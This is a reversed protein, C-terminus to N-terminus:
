QKPKTGCIVMRDVHPLRERMEQLVREDDHWSTMLDLMEAAYVPPEESIRYNIWTGEKRSEVLGSEELIKLHKSVTSQALGLLEQVECVCLEGEELIKVVRIRNPDSLAKM